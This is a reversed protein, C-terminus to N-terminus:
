TLAQWVATWDEHERNSHLWDIGLDNLVRDEPAKRLLTILFKAWEDSGRHGHLWDVAMAYM